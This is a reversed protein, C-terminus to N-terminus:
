GASQAAAQATKRQHRRWVLLTGIGILVQPLFTAARWILDAAMADGSSM